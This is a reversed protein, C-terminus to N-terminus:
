HLVGLLMNLAGAGLIVWVANIKTFATIGFAAFAFIWPMPLSTHPLLTWLTMLIMAMSGSRLSEDALDKKLPIYKSFALALSMALLPFAIVSFTAALAGLIGAKQWGVLTAANLAIPGPTSQAIAILSNFADASMWHPVIEQKILGVVSWGGGFAVVGVKLFTLSVNLIEM